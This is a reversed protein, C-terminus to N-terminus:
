SRSSNPAEQNMLQAVFDTVKEMPIRGDAQRLAKKVKLYDDGCLKKLFPVFSFPNPDEQNTLDYLNEMVDLDDFLEPSITLDVGMITVRKTDPDPPIVTKESM